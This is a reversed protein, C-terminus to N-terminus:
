KKQDAEHEQVLKIFDQIVENPVTVSLHYQRIKWGDSTRQLVGSGRCVGMWTDLLESFWVLDGTESVHISRDRAKFDWARGRDFYPKAFAIFEAKTWREHSDTGIYIGDEAMADFFADADADAAALHWNNLFENVGKADQAFSITPLVLLVFLLQLRM